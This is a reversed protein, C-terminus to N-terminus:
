LATATEILVVLNMTVLATGFAIDTSIEVLFVNIVPASTVNYLFAYACIIGIKLMELDFIVSLSLGALLLACGLHGVLLLTRRGFM